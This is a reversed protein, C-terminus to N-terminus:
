QPLGRARESARNGERYIPILLYLPFRAQGPAQCVRLEKYVGAALGYSMSPARARARSPRGPGVPHLRPADARGGLGEAAQACRVTPGLGPPVLSGVHEWTGQAKAGSHRQKRWQGGPGGQGNRPGAADQCLRHIPVPIHLLTQPLGPPSSPSPAGAGALPPWEELQPLHLWHGHPAM